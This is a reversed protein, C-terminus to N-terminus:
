GFSVVLVVDYIGVTVLRRGALRGGGRERKGSLWWWWWWLWRGPVGRVTRCDGVVSICGLRCLAREM